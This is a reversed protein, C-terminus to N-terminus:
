ILMPMWGTQDLTRATPRPWIPLESDWAKIVSISSEYLVARSLVTFGTKLSWEFISLIFTKFVFPLKIFTSLIASHEILANQLVKSM